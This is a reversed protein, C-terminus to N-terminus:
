KPYNCSNAKKVEDILQQTLLNNQVMLSNREDDAKKQRNWIFWITVTLAATPFGYKDMLAWFDVSNVVGDLLFGFSAYAVMLVVKYM